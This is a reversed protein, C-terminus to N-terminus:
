EFTRPLPLIGSIGNTTRALHNLLSASLFIVSAPPTTSNTAYIPFNMAFSNYAKRLYWSHSECRSHSNKIFIFPIMFCGNRRKDSDFKTMPSIHHYILLQCALHLIEVVACYMRWM